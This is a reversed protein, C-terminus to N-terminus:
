IHILSLTTGEGPLPKGDKMVDAATPTEAERRVLLYAAIDAHASVVTFTISTATVQRDPGFTVTPVQETGTEDDSCSACLMCLASVSLLAFHRFNKM